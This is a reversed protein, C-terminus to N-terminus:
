FSAVRPSGRRRRKTEYMAADAYRLLAEPSDGEDPFVGMGISAGIRLQRGAVEFPQEFLRAIRDRAVNEAGRADTRELIVTFEDGGMRAVTDAERVRALLARAVAQLLGDGVEHGFTDNIEKFGDLDLYLLAVRNGYRKAQALSKRLRDAFLARGALGTLTDHTATFELVEEARKREVIGALTHGVATLFEEEARSRAHGDGVYLNLVGLVRSGSLIPVCYHGHHRMGDFGIEHHGDLTARFVLEGTAAARGCLCTGFPLRKCADLISTHLGRQAALLLVGPEDGVLFVSGKSELAIWPIEFMLDLIKELQEVLPIPRMSVRLISFLADQIRVNSEIKDAAQRHEVLGALANAIVSLTEEEEFSRPHGHEVYLAVVGLLRGASLLPVCYHGHPAMGPYTIEHRADVSGAFVMKGTQAARGCLCTGGPLRACAERIEASLGQQARLVLTTGDDEVLFVGGQPVVPMWPLAFIGELAQGLLKELPEAKLSLRLTASLVSELRSRHELSQHDLMLATVDRAVTITGSVAGSAAFWPLRTTSFWQRRQGPFAGEEIRAEMPVATSRVQRDTAEARRAAEAPFLDADTRGVVQHPSMRLSEAFARNVRAYVGETDKFCIHDPVNEMYRVLMDYDRLLSRLERDEM